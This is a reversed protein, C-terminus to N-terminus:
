IRHKGKQHVIGNGMGRRITHDYELVKVRLLWPVKRTQKVITRENLFASMPSTYLGAWTDRQGKALEICWSGLLRTERKSEWKDGTGVSQRIVEHDVELLTAARKM